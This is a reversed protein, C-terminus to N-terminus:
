WIVMRDEAMAPGLTAALVRPGPLDGDFVDNILQTTIAELTRQVGASDPLQLNVLLYGQDQVPIFGTPSKMM